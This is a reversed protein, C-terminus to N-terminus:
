PFAHGKWCSRGRCGRQRAAVLKGQVLTCADAPLSRATGLTEARGAIFRSSALRRELHGHDWDDYAITVLRFDEPLDVVFRRRTGQAAALRVDASGPRAPPVHRVQLAPRPRPPAFCEEAYDPREWNTTVITLDDRPSYHDDTIELLLGTGVLLALVSADEPAAATGALLFGDLVDDQPSMAALRLACDAFDVTSWDGAALMGGPLQPLYHWVAAGPPASHIDAAMWIDDTLTEGCPPSFWLEGGAFREWSWVGHASNVSVSWYEHHETELVAPPDLQVTTRRQWRWASGGYQSLLLRNPGVEVQDEGLGSSGYGDNCLDFLLRRNVTEPRRAVFWYEAPLCTLAAEPDTREPLSIQVVSLKGSPGRGADYAHVVSCGSRGACALAEDSTGAPFTEDPPARPPERGTAVSSGEPQPTSAQASPTPAPVTTKPLPAPSVLAPQDLQPEDSGSHLPVPRCTAALLLLCVCSGRPFAPSTAIRSSTLAAGFAGFM